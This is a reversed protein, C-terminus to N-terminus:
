QVLDLAHHICVALSYDRLSLKNPYSSLATWVDGTKYDISIMRGYSLRSPMRFTTTKGTKPDLAYIANGGNGTIWVRKSRADYRAAYPFTDADPLPFEKQSNDITNYRLVTGYGSLPIWLNDEDDIHMRHPGSDPHSLPWEKAEGTAPNYFGLVNQTYKTYWVVGKSDMAIGYPQDTPAGPLLTVFVKGTVPDLQGIRDDGWLTLTIRGRVDKKVYGESDLAFSHTLSGSPFGPYLRWKYTTTDFRAVTSAHQLTVWLFGDRDFNLTHPGSGEIPISYITQQGSRPDISILENRGYDGVWAMTTRPDVAIDHTWSTADGTEYETIRATTAVNANKAYPDLAVPVTGYKNGALFAAVKVKDMPLFTAYAESQNRMQTIIAEWGAADRPMHALPSAPDHCLGACSAVFTAKIPENPLANLWAAGLTNLHASDDPPLSLDVAGDRETVMIEVIASDNYGPKRAHVLYKAPFLEAIKYHGSGDTLVSVAMRRSPDEATVFANAVPKGSSLSVVGTLSSAWSAGASLFTAVMFSMSSITRRIM